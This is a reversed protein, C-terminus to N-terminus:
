GAAVALAYGLTATGLFAPRRCRQRAHYFSHSSHRHFKAHHLKRSRVAVRVSEMRHARNYPLRHFKDPVLRLIQGTALHHNQRASECVSIIQPRTRDRSKRRHHLRHLPKRAAAPQHQPNAVSKLNQQLRSQQRARHHAVLPQTIQAAMHMYPHLRRIRRKRASRRQALHQLNRNRVIFPIIKALRRCERLQLAVVLNNKMVHPRVPSIRLFAVALRIRIPRQARNRPDAISLPIHQTQHRMRLPRHLSQQSRRIPQHNEPRQHRTQRSSPARRRTCQSHRCRRHRRLTQLEEKFCHGCFIISVSILTVGCIAASCPREGSSYARVCFINPRSGEKVSSPIKLTIHLSCQEYLDDRTCKFRSGVRPVCTTCPGPSFAPTTSIPSPITATKLISDCLWGLKTSGNSPAAVPPPPIRRSMKVM